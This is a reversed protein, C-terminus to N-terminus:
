TEDQAQIIPERVLLEQYRRIAADVQSNLIESETESIRYRSHPKWFVRLPVEFYLGRCTKLKKQEVSSLELKLQIETASYTQDVQTM